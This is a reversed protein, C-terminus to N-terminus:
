DELLKKGFKKTLSEGHIECVSKYEQLKHYIRSFM